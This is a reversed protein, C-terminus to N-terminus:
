SVLNISPIKGKTPVQYRFLFDEGLEKEILIGYHAPVPGVLETPEPRIRQTTSVSETYKGGYTLRTLDELNSPNRVATSMTWSGGGRM